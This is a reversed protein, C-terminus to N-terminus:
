VPMLLFREGENAVGFCEFAGTSRDWSYYTGGNNIEYQTLEGRVFILNYGIFDNIQLTSGGTAIATSASVTFYIPQPRTVVPTLPAVTGGANLLTLARFQYRGCLSLLYYATGPLTDDTPDLDWLWEVNKRIAYLKRDLQGDTGASYLGSKALDQSCIMQSLKAVEIIEPVSLM